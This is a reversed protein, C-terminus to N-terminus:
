IGVVHVAHPTAFVVEAEPKWPYSSVSIFVLGKVVLVLRAARGVVLCLSAFRPWTGALCLGFGIYLWGDKKATLLAYPIKTQTLNKIKIKKLYIYTHINQIEHFCLVLKLFVFSLNQAFLKFLKLTTFCM